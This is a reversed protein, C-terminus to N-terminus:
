FVCVAIGSVRRQCIPKFTETMSQMIKKLLNFLSLSLLLLVALILKAVYLFQMISLTGQVFILCFM